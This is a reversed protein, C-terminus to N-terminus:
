QLSALYAILDAIAQDPLDDLLLEPMLSKEQREITKIKSIPVRSVNGQVDKIAVETDSKEAILGSHVEGDQTLLAYGAFEPAIQLSPNLTHELLQAAGYKKGVHSLDPGFAVGQDGIRHCTKCRA